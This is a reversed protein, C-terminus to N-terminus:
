ISVCERGLRNSVSIRVVNRIFDSMEHNLPVSGPFGSLERAILTHLQEPYNFIGLRSEFLFFAGHGNKQVDLLGEITYPMSQLSMLILAGGWSVRIMLDKRVFLDKAM